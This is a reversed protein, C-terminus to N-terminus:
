QPNGVERRPANRNRGNAIGWERDGIGSPLPQNYRYEARGRLAGNALIEVGQVLRTHPEVYFRWEDPASGAWGPVESAHV